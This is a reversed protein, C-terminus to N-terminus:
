RLSCDGRLRRRARCSVPGGEGELAPRDKEAINLKTRRTLHGKHLVETILEFELLEKDGTAQYLALRLANPEAEEVARRLFDLDVDTRRGSQHQTEVTNM